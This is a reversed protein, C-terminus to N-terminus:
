KDLVFREYLPATLMTIKKHKDLEKLADSIIEHAKEGILVEKPKEMKDDWYVKGEVEKIKYDKIEQESFSLEARLSTLIKYNVYSTEQPLINMLSIRELVSFKM